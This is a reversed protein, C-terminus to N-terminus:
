NKEMFQFLPNRKLEEKNPYYTNLWRLADATKIHFRGYILSMKGWFNTLLQLDSTSVAFDKQDIFFYFISDFRISECLVFSVSDLISLITKSDRKPNFNIPNNKILDYISLKKGFSHAIVENEKCCNCNFFKGSPWMYGSLYFNSADIMYITPDIEAISVLVYNKGNLACTKEPKICTIDAKFDNFSIKQIKSKDVVLKELLEM